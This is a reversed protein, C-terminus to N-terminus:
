EDANRTSPAVAPAAVVDRSALLSAYRFGNAASLALNLALIVAAAVRWVVPWLRRTPPQQQRKASGVAGLIRDRLDAAPEPCGRGALQRELDDRDDEPRTPPM